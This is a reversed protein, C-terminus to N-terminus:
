SPRGWHKELRKVAQGLLEPCTSLYWYTDRVQSHGLFTSLVPVLLEAEKGTRYWNLLVKVAV